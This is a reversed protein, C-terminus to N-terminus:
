GMVIGLRVLEHLTFSRWRSTSPSPLDVTKKTQHYRPQHFILEHVINTLTNTFSKRHNTLINRTDGLNRWNAYASFTPSLMPFSVMYIMTHQKKKMDISINKNSSTCCSYDWHNPMRICMELNTPWWRYVDTV